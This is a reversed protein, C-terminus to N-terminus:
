TYTYILFLSSTMRSFGEVVDVQGDGWFVVRILLMMMSFMMLAL